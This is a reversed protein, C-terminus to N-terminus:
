PPAHPAGSNLPPFLPKAVLWSTTVLLDERSYKQFEPALKIRELDAEAGATNEERVIAFGAQQFIARYDSIRLRTLPTFPNQYHQWQRSTYQLFNFPTISRDLAAYQDALRIYHSVVAGPRALRRTENLLGLLVDPPIYELVSTSFFLDMTGDPLGTARGDRILLHLHFPALTEAPSATQAVARAERLAALREPILHPLFAELKGREAYDSFFDLVQALRKPRLLPALDCTWIEAAGCLYMGMPIIPYWGTGLEFVNFGADLRYREIRFHELHQHCQGLKFEFASASLDLSRTVHEQFWENGFHPQPLWGLGRQVFAKLKWHPM